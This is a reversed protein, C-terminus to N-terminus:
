ELAHQEGIMAHADQSVRDACARLRQGIGVRRQRREFLLALGHERAGAALAVAPGPLRRRLGRWVHRGPRHNSEMADHALARTRDVRGARNTNSPTGAPGPGSRVFTHSRTTPASPSGSLAHEGGPRLNAPRAGIRSAGQQGTEDAAGSGDSSQSFSSMGPSRPM